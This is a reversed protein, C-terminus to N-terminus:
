GITFPLRRPGRVTGVSWAVDAGPELTFEPFIKLWEQLGVNIEMRALNSGICRHIGLGFSAHRNEARDIIVRDPDPFMAPDRNAAGLPLMIMQGTKVPCGGLERDKVIERAMTAPAYARLLEEVATPILGPEAVLRCRDEKHKALHWLCTGIMSWTTDIGALLLLRLTGVIHDDALERGEIKAKLLFSVLDDGPAARRRAVVDGFYANMEDLAQMVLSPDTIGDELSQKIWRRYMTADAEPLGLMFTTVRVPVEQAYEVAGDLTSRGALTKLLTQCIDRTRPELKNIEAPTFAPLLLMRQARHEPPDSTVPPAPILPVEGERVMMRRSSFHETDYAVARIDEYRTPLYVGSFRDTHAIPCVQRLEAWVSFPDEVWRPALPDFDTAWDTVVQRQSM